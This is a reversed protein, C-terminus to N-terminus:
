DYFGDSEDDENNELEDDSLVKRNDWEKELDKGKSSGKKYFVDGNSVVLRDEFFECEQTQESEWAIKSNDDNLKGKLSDMETDLQNYTKFTVNSGKVDFVYRWKAGNDGTSYGTYEGSVKNGCGGLVSLLVFATLSIVVLKINKM